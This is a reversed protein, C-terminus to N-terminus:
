PKKGRVLKMIFKVITMIVWMFAFGIITSLLAGVIMVGVPEAQFATVSNMLFMGGSIVSAILRIRKIGDERKDQNDIM